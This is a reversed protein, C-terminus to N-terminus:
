RTTTISEEPLAAMVASSVKVVSAVGSGSGLGGVSVDVEVEVAVVVGGVLPVPVVAVVVSGVAVEVCGVGTSATDFVSVTDTLVLVTRIVHCVFTLASAWTCYPVVFAYPISLAIPANPVECVILTEPRVAFM